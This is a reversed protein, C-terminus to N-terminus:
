NAASPNKSNLQADLWDRWVQRILTSRPTKLRKAVIDSDQLDRDGLRIPVVHALEAM